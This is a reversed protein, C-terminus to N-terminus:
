SAAAVGYKDELLSRLQHFDSVEHCPRTRGEHEAWRGGRQSRVTIMGVENAPDIDHVPSDGVYMVAGPELAQDELVRQYLKPNPKSIGIQETFYIAHPTLFDRINLRILKEAQKVSIGASIIGRILDTSALWSLVEWADDYVRFDRWKTEHYAVVGAAVLVARNLGASAEDPLRQIIKDFHSQYNSTFEELVEQLERMCTEHDARLGAACMADIAARRASDAFQSTSFLTDDIDFFIAKLKKM